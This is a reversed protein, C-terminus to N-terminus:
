APTRDPDFEHFGRQRNFKKIFELIEARDKDAISTFQLGM